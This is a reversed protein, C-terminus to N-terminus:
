LMGNSQCSVWVRFTLPWTKFEPDNSYNKLPSGIKYDCKLGEATLRRQAKLLVRKVNNINGCRFVSYDDDVLFIFGNEKPTINARFNYPISPHKYESIYFKRYNSLNAEYYYNSAFSGETRFTKSSINDSIREILYKYINDAIQVVLEEPMESAWEQQAIKQKEFDEQQQKKLDDLLGM